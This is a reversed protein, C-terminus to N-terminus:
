SGDEVEFAEAGCDGCSFPAPRFEVYERILWDNTVRVVADVFFSTSDPDAHSAKGENPCRLM